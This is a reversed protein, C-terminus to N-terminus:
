LGFCAQVAQRELRDRYARSAGDLSARNAAEKARRCEEWRASRGTKLGPRHIPARYGRHTEANRRDMEQEIRQRRQIAEAHDPTDYVRTALEQGPACPANQYALTGKPGKCKWIVNAAPAPLTVVLLLAMAIRKRM